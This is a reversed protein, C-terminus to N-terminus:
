NKGLYGQLNHIVKDSLREFAQITRGVSVNQCYVNPLDILDEDGLAMLTDCYLLNESNSVWEKLANKDWAPSLGTNFLVKNNGLSEFEEQYMLVTNKNLCCCVIQSESLVEKLAKYHFGKKRAEIKESRSFYSIEAGFFSLADAILGGSAGLGIVGVKLGTIESPTGLWPNRKEGQKNEGFGHLLQIIESVVYEAVGEDGYDRIGTVEIGLEGAARIDVNASEPSYLSCCMGIYKLAPVSNIVEKGLYSTYSLLVADAEGIRRIMEQDNEPISDYVVVEDAYTKLSEEAQGTLNLPELAVLKKFKKM